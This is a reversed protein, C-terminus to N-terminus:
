RSNNTKEDKDEFGYQLVYVDTKLLRIEKELEKIREDVIANIVKQEEQVETKYSIRAINAGIGAVVVLILLVILEITKKM